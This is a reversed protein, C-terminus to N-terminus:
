RRRIRAVVSETQESRVVILMCAYVVIGTGGVVVMQALDPLHLVAEAIVIAIIMAATAAVQKGISLVTARDLITGVRRQLVVIAVVASFAYAVSFSAALGVVGFRHTRKHLLAM